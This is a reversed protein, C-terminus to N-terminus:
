WETGVTVSSPYLGYCLGSTILDIKNSDIVCYKTSTAVQIGYITSTPTNVNIVSNNMVRVTDQYQTYIGYSSTTSFGWNTITNGSGPVGIWNGKDYYTTSSGGQIYMGRYVGSITNGSFRNYSNTGLESAPQSTSTFSTASAHNMYIGNSYPSSTNTINMSISCNKITNYKCGNTTTAKFLAIGAEMMTTTTTNTNPDVFDIGDITIYDGGIIELIADANGVGASATIAPNAGSGSKQFVIPNGLTGTATIQINSGTETHGAAINFVVGGTGVGSSNVASIALQITAYDPSTGGVTKTGTLQSFAPTTFALLLTALVSLNLKKM